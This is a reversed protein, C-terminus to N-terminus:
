RATAMDRLFMGSNVMENSGLVVRKSGEGFTSSSPSHKSNWRAVVMAEAYTAGGVIFVVAEHCRPAATDGGRSGGQTSLVPHTATPLGQGQRSFLAELTSELLPTHRTYVNEVGVLGEQISKKIAGGVLSVGGMLKSGATGGGASKAGGAYLGTTRRRVGAFDRVRRLLGIEHAECGHGLLLDKLSDLTDAGDHDQLDSEYRLVFLLALRLQEAPRTRPDKVVESLSKFAVAMKEASCALDQELESIKMLNKESVVRSLEGVTAVHKEVNTGMARFEPFNAVVRKMDDITQINQATRTKQGFDEVLAKMNEGLDGFNCYMNDRFFEDQQSDLVVERHDPKANPLHVRNNTIGFLEHVMAQYTWQALLPTLPDDRRDLFLLTTGGEAGASKRFEFLAAAEGTIRASVMEALRRSTSSAATYRLTPRAIKLSLLLSVIGDICRDKVAVDMTVDSDGARYRSPEDFVFVDENLAIFDAFYEQVSRVVEFEDAEALEELFSQRVANSFYVHYEGYKPDELEKRLNMINEATPRVFVVAKMHRMMERRADLRDVLFVEHALIDTQSQVVSVIGTTAQDLLLVKMGAITGLMKELYSRAAGVCAM